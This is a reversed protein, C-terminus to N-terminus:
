EHESEIESECVYYKHISVDLIQKWNKNRKGKKKKQNKNEKIYNWKIDNTLYECPNLNM